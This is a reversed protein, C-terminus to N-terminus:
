HADDIERVYLIRLLDRTPLGFRLVGSENTSFFGLRGGPTIQVIELHLIAQSIESIPVVAQHNKVDAGADLAAARFVWLKDTLQTKIVVLKVAIAPERARM